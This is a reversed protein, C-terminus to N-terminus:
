LENLATREAASVEPLKSQWEPFFAEDETRSLHFRQEAEALTTIADTIALTM